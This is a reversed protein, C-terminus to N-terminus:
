AASISYISRTEKKVTGKKCQLSVVAHSKAHQAHSFEYQNVSYDECNNPIQLLSIGYKEGKTSLNNYECKKM